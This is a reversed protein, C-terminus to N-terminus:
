AAKTLAFKSAAEYDISQDRRVYKALEDPTLKQWSEDGTAGPLPLGGDGVVKAMTRLVVHPAPQSELQAIRKELAAVSSKSLPGKHSKDADGDCSAGMAVLHDHAAQLRDTNAASMKSNAKAVIAARVDDISKLPKREADTLETKAIDALEVLPLEQDSVRKVLEGVVVANEIADRMEDSMAKGWGDPLKDTAGLAKARAIIHAKAKSKDKARGYAHVANELDSANQIPFSGDPLAAGSEAAKKREDTNFERKKMDEITALMVDAARKAVVLNIGELADAMSFKAVGLAATFADVQEPTGQVSVEKPEPKFERKEVKGDSKIIDFFRASPICPSDVLSVEIPKATYRTVDRGDASKETKREGVYSGGISAGTYAGALVKKWDQDDVVHIVGDITKETDNFTMPEKLVGAVSKGHMARVNGYSKGDSHKFNEDSWSKFHPKSSDYDLMEDAKDHEEAAIRTYVLRKEEDVKTIRAFLSPNM